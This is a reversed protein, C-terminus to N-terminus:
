QTVLLSIPGFMGSVTQGDMIFPTPSVSNLYPALTNFVTIEINNEGRVLLDTLDLRYPSWVCVGSAKGNVHVEVTGRVIGLDLVYKSKSLQNLVFTQRYKVGGSYSGLGAAGWDGLEIRGRDFAYTLPDSFIAGRSYGKEPV